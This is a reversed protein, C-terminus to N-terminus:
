GRFARVDEFGFFDVAGYENVGEIDGADVPCNPDMRGPEVSLVKYNAGATHVVDGPRIDEAM